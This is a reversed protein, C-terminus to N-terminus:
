VTKEYILTQLVSSKEKFVLKYGNKEFTANVSETSHIYGKLGRNSKSFRGMIWLMRNLFFMFMKLLLNDKPFTIVVIKPNKQTAVNIMGISNPHCCLVTHSSVADVIPPDFKIIDGVTFLTKELVGFKEFRKKIMDIANPSADIGHIEEIGTNQLALM